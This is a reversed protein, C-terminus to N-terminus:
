PSGIAATLAATDPVNDVRTAEFRFIHANALGAHAPAYQPAGSVDGAAFVRPNSTRQEADVIIVRFRGTRVFPNIVFASIHHDDDLRAGPFNEYYFDGRQVSRPAGFIFFSALHGFM